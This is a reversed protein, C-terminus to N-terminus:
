ALTRRGFLVGGNSLRGVLGFGVEGALACGAACDVAVCGVAGASSSATTAGTAAGDAPVVAGVACGTKSSTLWSIKDENDLLSACLLRGLLM